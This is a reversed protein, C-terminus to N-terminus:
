ENSLHMTKLIAEGKTSHASFTLKRSDDVQDIHIVMDPAPLLSAGKEPWEIWCCSTPTFYEEFGFEELEWPSHLRYLDFHYQPPNVSEYAEVIAYTPSHISGQVGLAQLAARVLTTKGVGLEGRLHISCGALPSKTLQQGISMVQEESKCWCSNEMLVTVFTHCCM